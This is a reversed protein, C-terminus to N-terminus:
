HVLLGPQGAVRCAGEADAADPPALKINMYQHGQSKHSVMEIPLYAPNAQMTEADEEEEEERTPPGEGEPSAKFSAKVM